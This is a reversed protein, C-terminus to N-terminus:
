GRRRPRATTKIPIPQYQYAPDPRLAARVMEALGTLAKRMTNAANKRATSKM